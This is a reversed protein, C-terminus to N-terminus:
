LTLAALGALDNVQRLPPLEAYEDPMRGRNVWVARFGFAAAGM